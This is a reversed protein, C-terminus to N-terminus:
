KSPSAPAATMEEQGTSLCISTFYAASSYVKSGIIRGSSIQRVNIVVQIWTFPSKSCGEHKNTVFPSYLVRHFIIPKGPPEHYLIWRGICSIYSVLTRYVPQSSGRFSSIAVWELIRAQLIGHVSFCDVPGCFTPCLQADELGWRDHFIVSNWWFTPASIIYM